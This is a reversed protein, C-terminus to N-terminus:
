TEYFSPTQRSGNELYLSNNTSIIFKQEVCTYKPDQQPSQMAIESLAKSMLFWLGHLSGRLKTQTIVSSANIVCVCVCVDKNVSFFPLM